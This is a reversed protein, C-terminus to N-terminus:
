DKVVKHMGTVGSDLTIRLWYIGTTMNRFSVQDSRTSYIKQGLTNFVAVEQVPGDAAIHLIDTVPNPYLLLGAKADEMRRIGTTTDNETPLPVLGSIKGQLYLSVPIDGQQQNFVAAPVEIRFVHNGASLAGLPIVRTTIIDGPCWNSFSQWQADTKQSQGYIGNGQTNYKRFPECSKRGPKYMLKQNGDFYIYHNRRNYEEGGSNAGHNSTILFLVADSLGAPVPFEITRRTLGVSDTAAAVYNNLYKKFNLPILMNTNQVPAPVNDTVFELSGFFVDNRGSCGPVENNAAYPVGFVELEAWIDYTDVISSEKLLAAVNAIDYAYPVTDPTRNKNMFPTIFRGIEIRQVVGPDYASDGKPVLALNVNGIRDYNDCAAKITVNMKLSNGVKNLQDSSLKVAYLYNNHRIVGAPLPSPSVANYTSDSVLGAYGDFFLVKDFIPITTQGIADSSIITCTGFAILCLISKLM